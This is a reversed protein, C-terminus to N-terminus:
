QKKGEEVKPNLKNKKDLAKLHLTLNNIQSREINKTYASMAIFKGILVTNATGWLGQYITSENENFELFMKIEQRM